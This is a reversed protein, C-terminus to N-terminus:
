VTCARECLCRECNLEDLSSHCARTDDNVEGTVIVSFDDVEGVIMFWGDDIEGLLHEFVVVVFWRRKSRCSGASADTHFWVFRGESRFFRGRVRTSMVDRAIEGIAEVALVAEHGHDFSVFFLTFVDVATAM